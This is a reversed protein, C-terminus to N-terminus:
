IDSIGGHIQTDKRIGAGDVAGLPGSCLFPETAMAQSCVEKTFDEM